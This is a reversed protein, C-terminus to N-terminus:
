DLIKPSIFLNSSTWCKFFVPRPHTGLIRENIKELKVASSCHNDLGWRARAEGVFMRSPQFAKGTAFV